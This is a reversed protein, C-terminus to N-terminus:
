FHSQLTGEAAPISCLDPQPLHTVEGLVADLSFILCIYATLLDLGWAAGQKQLLM